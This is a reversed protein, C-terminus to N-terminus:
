KKSNRIDSVKKHRQKVIEFLVVGTAVSVNLSNIKGLLPIRIRVDCVKRISERIGRGEGGIVVALPIDCSVATYEKEGSMDLGYIWLGKEKLWDITKVINTVRAVPVYEVAGASTKATTDTLGAARHKPIVIGHVGACDATRIIAGLNRPDEVGDLILIFPTEKKRVAIDIIEEVSSFGKAAVIGFIGQHKKTGAIRDLSERSEFHVPVGQLKCLKIIEDVGKSFIGRAIYVKGFERTGAKLAELLPNLGFLGETRNNM